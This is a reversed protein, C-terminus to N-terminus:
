AHAVAVFARPDYSTAPLTGMRLATFRAGFLIAKANLETILQHKDDQQDLHVYVLARGSPAMIRRAEQAVRQPDDTHDLVNLLLVTDAWADSVDATDVMLPWHTLNAAKYRHALTDVALAESYRMVALVPLPGAGIEACRGAEMMERWFYGYYRAGYLAYMRERASNGVLYRQWWEFESAQMDAFPSAVPVTIV